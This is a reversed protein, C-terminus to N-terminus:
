AQAARLALPKQTPRLVRVVDGVRVTGSPSAHILNQGFYVSKGDPSSRVRRLTRLPEENSGFEGKTQDVTTLKCRTCPKVVHMQHAGIQVLGWTDEAFPVDDEPRGSAAAVVINPRFRNMPVPDPLERNLGALSGESALLFPFGDGFAVTNATGDVRYDKGVLRGNDDPVRVLRVPRKLYKSFWRAAEDGEDIAPVKDSWIVVQVEEQGSQKRLAEEALRDEVEPPHVLGLEIRMRDMRAVHARAKLEVHLTPMHPANILLTTATIRPVVLALSPCVRQTVFFRPATTTPDDSVIMWRRDHEFGHADFTAETLTTGACSKIPYVMLGTVRYDVTATGPPHDGMCRAALAAAATAVVAASASLLLLHLGHEGGWPAALAGTLAGLVSWWWWPWWLTHM